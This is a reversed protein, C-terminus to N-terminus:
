CNDVSYKMCAQRFSVGSIVPASGGHHRGSRRADSRPGREVTEHYGQEM